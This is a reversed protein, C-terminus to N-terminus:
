FADRAGHFAIARPGQRILLDIQDGALEVRKAAVHFVSGDGVDEGGRFLEEGDFLIRFSILLSLNFITGRSHGTARLLSCQAPPRSRPAAAGARAGARVTRRCNEGTVWGSKDASM